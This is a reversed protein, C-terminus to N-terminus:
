TIGGQWKNKWPLYMLYFVSLILITYALVYLGLPLNMAFLFTIPPEKLYAYNSGLIVNITIIFVIYFISGCICNNFSRKNIAGSHSLLTYIVTLFICTHGLYFQIFLANPFGAGSTDPVILAIVAGLLGWFYLFDFIKQNFNILIVICLLESIRCPYLPLAEKVTFQANFYYWSYLLLQQLLLLGMLARKIILSIKEIKILEKNKIILIIFVIFGLLFVWHNYSFPEYGNLNSRYIINIIDNM